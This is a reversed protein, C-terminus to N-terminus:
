AVGQFLNQPDFGYLGDAFVAIQLSLGNQFVIFPVNVAVTVGNKFGYFCPNYGIGNFGSMKFSRKKIGRLVVIVQFIVLCVEGQRIIVRYAFRGIRQFPKHMGAHRHFHNDAVAAGGLTTLKLFGMGWFPM